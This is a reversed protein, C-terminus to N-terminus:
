TIPINLFLLMDRTKFAWKESFKFYTGNNEDNIGFSPEGQDGSNKSENIKSLYTSKSKRKDKLKSKFSKLSGQENFEDESEPLKEAPAAM